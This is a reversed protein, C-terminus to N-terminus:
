FLEFIKLKIKLIEVFSIEIEESKLVSVYNSSRYLSSVM